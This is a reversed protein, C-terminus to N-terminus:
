ELRPEVLALFASLAGDCWDLWETCRVDMRHLLLTRRHDLVVSGLASRRLHGRYITWRSYWRSQESDDVCAVVPKGSWKHDDRSTWGRDRLTHPERAMPWVLEDDRVEYWHGNGGDAVRWEVADAMAGGACSLAAVAVTGAAVSKAVSMRGSKTKSQM